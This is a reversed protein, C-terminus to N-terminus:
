ALGLQELAEGAGRLNEPKMESYSRSLVVGQAGGKYAALVAERVGAPTCKSHGAATPVDIDIGPWVLTNTGAVGDVTRKTERYVYDSSFGAAALKDLPAENCNLVKYEFDLLEAKSLDGHIHAGVSEMYSIMREGACNNYLVPKVFDSYPALTAFDQEARYIPNFSSNQWIHWGAQLDPRISKVKAHLAEYTERQGNNWFREWVLVEPYDLLVRWFAVYYGDVPRRGARGARVFKELARYGQKVRAFDIGQTRAKQECFSCFCCVTGPDARAGNHYAGMSYGLPGQRESGFMIGDIQYSRCHDEVLGLLYNRYHPNNFCPGAPHREPVRGDIGVEWLRDMNAVKPLTNDEIIWSFTKMGRKRAAPAVAALADFSPFEPARTDEPNVLTDRYYRPHVTAFNGGRFTGNYSRAHVREAMYTHTYLFLANVHALRQLDDLVKDVGQDILPGINLQIGVFTRPASQQWALAPALAASTSVAAKVFERRDM